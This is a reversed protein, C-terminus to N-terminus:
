YSGRQFLVVRVTSIIIWADLRLSKSRVYTVDMAV